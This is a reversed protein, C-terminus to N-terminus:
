YLENSLNLIPVFFNVNKPFDYGYANARNAPSSYRCEYADIQRFHMKAVKNWM